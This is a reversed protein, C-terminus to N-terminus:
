DSSDNMGGLRIAGGLGVPLETSDTGATGM